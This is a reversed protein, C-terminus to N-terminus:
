EEEDEEWSEWSNERARLQGGGTDSGDGEGGYGMDDTGSGGSGGDYAIQIMCLYANDNTFSFIFLITM